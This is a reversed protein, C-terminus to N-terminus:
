VLTGQTALGFSYWVAIFGLETVLYYLDPVAKVMVQICGVERSQFGYDLKWLVSFCQLSRLNNLYGLHAGVSATLHSM